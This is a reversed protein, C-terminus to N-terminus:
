HTDSSAHLRDHCPKLPPSPAANLQRIQPPRGSGQHSGGCLPREPQPQLQLPRPQRGSARTRGSPIRLTDPPPALVPAVCDSPRESRAAWSFWFAHVLPQLRNQDKIVWLVHHTGGKSSCSPLAGLRSPTKPRGHRLQPALHTMWNQEGASRRARCRQEAPRPPRLIGAATADASLQAGGPETVQLGIAHQLPGGMRLRRPPRVVAERPQPLLHDRHELAQMGPLLPLPAPASRSAHPPSRRQHTTPWGAPRLPLPMAGVSLM